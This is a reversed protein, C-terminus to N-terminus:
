KQVALDGNYNNIAKNYSVLGDAIAQHCLDTPTYWSNALACVTLGASYAVVETVNENSQISIGIIQRM